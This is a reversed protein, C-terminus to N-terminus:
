PAQEGLSSSTQMPDHDHTEVENAVSFRRPVDFSPQLALCRVGTQCRASAALRATSGAGQLRSRDVRDPGAIQRAGDLRRLDDGLDDVGVHAGSGQQPLLCEAVHLPLEGRFEFRQRRGVARVDALDAPVQPRGRPEARELHPDAVARRVEGLHQGEGREGLAEDLVERRQVVGPLRQGAQLRPEHLLVLPPRGAVAHVRDDDRAGRAVLLEHGVGDFPGELLEGRRRLAQPARGLERLHARDQALAGAVLALARHCPPM